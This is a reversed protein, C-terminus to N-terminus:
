NRAKLIFRLGIVSLIGGVILTLIPITNDKKYTFPMEEGGISRSFDNLMNMGQELRDPQLKQYAVFLVVLGIATIIIGTILKETKM